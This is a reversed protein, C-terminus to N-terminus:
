WPFTRSWGTTGSAGAHGEWPWGGGVGGNVQVSGYGGPGTLGSSSMSLDLGLTIEEGASAGIQPSIGKLDCVQDATTIQFFGGASANPLPGGAGLFESVLIGISVGKEFSWGFHIGLEVGGSGFITGSAQGGFGITFLGTPDVCTLPNNAAYSYPSLRIGAGVYGAVAGASSLIPEPRTWRGTEPDYDRAGFRVLGTDADWLGGAFGFPQFGPASDSLVNGWADYEVRQAVTDSWGEYILRPSGLEDTLVRYTVGNKIILEPVNVKTGYVFRSVVEGSGDLEAAIRLASEWLFAQVLVGDVKKGIRRGAPDVLYEIKKGSPLGVGLLNGLADYHYVTPAESGRKRTLLDGAPSWTYVTDGWTTLRDARDFM